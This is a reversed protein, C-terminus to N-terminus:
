KVVLVSCNAFDVVKDGTGGLFRRKFPHETEVGLVILDAGIEGAKKVIEESPKGFELHTHIDINEREAIKIADNIYRSYYSAAREKEENYGSRLEVFEPVRAVTILHLESNYTKSLNIAVKLAKYSGESGSFAILLKRFM